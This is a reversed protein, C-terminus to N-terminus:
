EEEPCSSEPTQPKVKTSRSRSRFHGPVNPMRQSRGGENRVSSPLTPPVRSFSSMYSEPHFNRSPQVVSVHAAASEDTGKGRMRGESGGLNSPKMRPSLANNMKMTNSSTLQLDRAVALNNLSREGRVANTLKRQGIDELYHPSVEGQHRMDRALEPSERRELNEKPPLPHQLLGQTPNASVPYLDCQDQHHFLVEEELEIGCFECPIITSGETQVAEHQGPYSFRSGFSTRDLELDDKVLGGYEQRTPSFSRKSFSALASAPSCGTQHLILDEEPYLEECFECPLMIVDDNKLHNTINSVLPEHLFTDSKNIRNLHEPPKAGKSYNKWFDSHIETSTTDHPNNESQLSLALMYDFNSNQEESLSSETNQNRQLQEREAVRNQDRWMASTNRTNIDKFLQDRGFSSYFPSQLPRPIGWLTRVYDDPSLINRISQFSCPEAEEDECSFLARAKNVHKQKAEKGCVEAHLKLDKVMINRGCGSCTETRTGCYEEHDQLKNFTLEIDCYQCVAPRLPCSSAEHDELDSKEIKMNCKCTVKVHKSEVHNKMESKPVSEKCFGCVEINRSCHIEHITFNAVPVDKKCNSCLQTEQETGVTVDM